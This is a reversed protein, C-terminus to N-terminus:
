AANRRQEVSVDPLAGSGHPEAGQLGAPPHDGLGEGRAVRAASSSPVPMSHPAEVTGTAPPVPAECKGIVEVRSPSTGVEPKGKRYWTRRSMNLAEWPKAASISQAVFSARDKAGAARRKQEDRKRDMERKRNKMFKTRAAKKMDVAGITKLKLALRETMTLHLLGAAGDARMMRRRKSAEVTIPLLDAETVWPAFVRCWMAMDQGPVLSLAAVRVFDLCTERDDTGEPDPVPGNFRHRIIDEIERLRQMELSHRWGKRQHKKHQPKKEWRLDRLIVKGLMLHGTGDGNKKLYAASM